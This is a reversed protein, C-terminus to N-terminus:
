RFCSVNLQLDFAMPMTEVFPRAATHCGNIAYRFGAATVMELIRGLQQPKGKASHYEFFLLGVRDLADAIDFLVENEAGEIDIKLFSVPRDALRDRLREAKVTISSGANLFDVETSGALSGEQYFTLETDETWAAARHLEVGDIGRTNQELLAFMQPDPEYAIVTAQPHLRKFYLVSLGINAGADIIHPAADPSDFRYVEDVFIERLSHLFGAADAFAFSRGFLDVRGEEFPRLRRVAAYAADDLLAPMPSREPHGSGFRGKISQVIGM